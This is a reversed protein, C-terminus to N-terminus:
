GVRCYEHISHCSFPTQPRLVILNPQGHMVPPIKASIWKYVSVRCLCSESKNYVVQNV